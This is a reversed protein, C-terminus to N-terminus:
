GPPYPQRVVTSGPPLLPDPQLHADPLPHPYAEGYQWWLIENKLMPQDGKVTLRGGRDGGEVTDNCKWNSKKRQGFDGDDMLWMTQNPVPHEPIPFPYPLLLDDGMRKAGEVNIAYDLIPDWPEVSWGRVVVGGFFAVPKSADLLDEDLVVNRGFKSTGIRLPHHSPGRDDVYKVFEYDCQHCWEKVERLQRKRNSDISTQDGLARKASAVLGNMGGMCDQCFPYPTRQTRAHRTMCM